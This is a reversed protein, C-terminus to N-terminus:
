IVSHTHRTPDLVTPEVAGSWGAPVVQHHGNSVPITLGSGGLTPYRDWAQGVAEMSTSTTVAGSCGSFSYTTWGVDFERYVSTGTMVEDVIYRVWCGESGTLQIFDGAVVEGWISTAASAGSSVDLANFRLTEVDTRLGEYTTVVSGTQGSAGDAPAEFAAWSGATAVAGSTDLNNHTGVPAISETVAVVYTAFVVSNDDRLTVTVTGASCGNLAISAGDNHFASANEAGPCSDDHSLNGSDGSANLVVRVGQSSNLTFSQPANVAISTPIPSLSANGVVAEITALTANTGTQRLILAVAGDSCGRLHITEGASLRRVEKSATAPCSGALTVAGAQEGENLILKVAPLNTELTLAVVEDRPLVTGAPDPTLRAYTAAVNVSYTALTTGGSQLTVTADGATCAKLTLSDGNSASASANEAGPCSNSFSLNGSYGSANLVVSVSQLNTALSVTASENLAIAVPAPELRAYSVVNVTYSTLVDNTGQILLRVSVEGARCGKLVVTRGGSYVRAQRDTTRADTLSVAGASNQNVAVRINRTSTTTLTFSVTENLPIESPTPNLSAEATQADAGSGEWPDVLALVGAVLASGALAVAVGLLLTQRHRGMWARM